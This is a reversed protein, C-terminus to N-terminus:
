EVTLFLRYFEMNYGKFHKLFTKVNTNSNIIIDDCKKNKSKKIMWACGGSNITKTPLSIRLDEFTKWGDKQYSITEIGNLEETIFDNIILVYFYDEDSCLTPINDRNYCYQWDKGWVNKMNKITFYCYLKKDDNNAKCVFCLKAASPINEVSVITSM